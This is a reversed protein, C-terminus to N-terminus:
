ETSGNSGNSGLSAPNVIFGQTPRGGKYTPPIEVIRLWGHADLYNIAADIADADREKSFERWGKRRLDRKVFREIREARIWRAIRIAGPRAPHALMEGYIAIAHPELYDDIFRRTVEATEVGIEEIGGGKMLHFVLALRAFLAPYKALHAGFPSDEDRREPRNENRVLWSNFISYAEGSFRLVGGRRLLDTNASAVLRRIERLRTEVKNRAAYDPQRDVVAVQDPFRPWVALGFRAAMGDAYGERFIKEAVKPQISGVISLYLDPITV